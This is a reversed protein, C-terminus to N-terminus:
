EYIFPHVAASTELFQYYMAVALQAQPTTFMMDPTENDLQYYFSGDGAHYTMFYNILSEGEYNFAEDSPDINSSILAIIVHAMTAANNGYSSTYLNTTITDIITENYTENDLKNLALLVLSLTDLDLATLDAEDVATLYTTQFEDDDLVLSMLSGSYLHEITANELLNTEATTTDLSLAQSALIYKIHSSVDATDDYTPADITYNEFTDLIDLASLVYYNYDDIYDDIYNAEFLTFTDLMYAPIDWWVLSFTFVDGEAYDITDIGESASEGNKDIHIYNGERTTLDGVSTIQTGHETDTHEIEVVSDLVSLLDDHNNIPAYVTEVESGVIEFTVYELIEERKFTFTDGNEFGITDVGEQAFVDNKYFGIYYDETASISEITTIMPGYETDDYAISLEATILEFLNTDTEEDFEITH